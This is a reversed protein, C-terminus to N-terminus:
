PIKRWVRLKASRARSNLSCEMQSATVAKRTIQEGAAVGGCNCFPQRPPCKCVTSSERMFQKVIRDEGSHYSIIALIGQPNLMEALAPLGNKLGNLEDNVAIRVAQFLRAFDSPGTKSGLAGRIANVLHDSVSFPETERRRVIESALRRAKREDGYYFFIDALEEETSKNLIDSAPVTTSDMRMDLPAGKRFSFGRQDQDLQHSSVGLDALIFDAKINALQAIQGVQTFDGSVPIFRDGFSKLRQSAVSLAETDRDIGYVTAETGALFANSHGGGGLTCDIIVRSGKAFALIESVLVPNHYDTAFSQEVSASM